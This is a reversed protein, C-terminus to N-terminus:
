GQGGPVYNPFERPHRKIFDALFQGFGVEDVVRGELDAQAAKVAVFAEHTAKMTVNPNSSRRGWEQWAQTLKLRKALEPSIEEVPEIADTNENM